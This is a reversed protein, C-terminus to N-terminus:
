QINTLKFGGDILEGTYTWEYDTLKPFEDKSFVYVMETATFTISNGERKMDTIYFDYVEETIGQSSLDSILKKQANYINSGEKLFDKVLNFDNHNIADVLAFLYGRYHDEVMYGIDETLGEEFHENEYSLDSSFTHKEPSDFLYTTSYNIGNVKWIDEEYIFELDLPTSVEETSEAYEVEENLTAVSTIRFVGDELWINYSLPYIEFNLAKSTMWDSNNDDNEIMNSLEKIAKGTFNSLSDKSRTAKMLMYNTLALETLEVLTNKLEDEEKVAFFMNSQNVPKEETVVEGWPFYIKLAMNVSGDMLIPGFAEDNKLNWEVPKKNILLEVKTDLEGLDTSIYVEDANLQFYHSNDQGSLISMEENSELDIYEGKLKASVTYIGPILPGVTIIQDDEELQGVEKENIHFVTGAYPAGLEVYSPSIELQYRPFIGLFRGKKKLSLIYEEESEKGKHVKQEHLDSIISNLAEDDEKLWQLFPQVTDETVKLDENSTNLLSTLQKVDNEEVAKEFASITRDPNVFYQIIFFLALLLTLAGVIASTWIKQKKTWKRKETKESTRSTRTVAPATKTEVKKGCNTCFKAGEKLPNGCQTCFKVRNGGINIIFFLKCLEFIYKVMQKLLFTHKEIYIWM